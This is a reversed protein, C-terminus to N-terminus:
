WCWTPLHTVYPPGRRLGSSGCGLPGHLSPRVSSLVCRAPLVSPHWSPRPHEQTVKPRRRRWGPSLPQFVGLDLLVLDALLGGGLAEAGCREPCTIDEPLGLLPHSGGQWRAPSGGWVRDDLVHRAGCVGAEQREGLADRLTNQTLFPSSNHELVEHCECLSVCAAFM